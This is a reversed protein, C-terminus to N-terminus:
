ELGLYERYLKITFETDAARKLAFPSTARAEAKQREFSGLASGVFVMLSFSIVAVGALIFREIGKDVLFLAIGGIVTLVAPLVDAVAPSRSNATLFGAVIALLGFTFAVYLVQFTTKITSSLEARSIYSCAFAILAFLCSLGTPFILVEISKSIAVNADIGLM